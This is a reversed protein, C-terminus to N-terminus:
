STEKDAWRADEQLRLEDVLVSAADPLVDEPRMWALRAMLVDDSPEDFVVAVLGDPPNVYEAGPEYWARVYVRRIDSM